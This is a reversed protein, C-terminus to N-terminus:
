KEWGLLYIITVSLIVALFFIILDILITACIKGLVSFNRMWKVKSRMGRYDCSFFTIAIVSLFLAIRCLNLARESTVQEVKLGLGLYAMSLYGCIAIVKHWWVGQRFGPFAYPDKMQKGGAPEGAGNRDTIYDMVERMSQFRDDPDIATCKDVMNSLVSSSVGASELMERVTAGLGYVDTREDSEAFGFQEPAAYGATGMILTDRSKEGSVHRAINFDTLIVTGDGLILINDPKVDRHIIPPERRHLRDLIGALRYAISKIRLEDLGNIELFRQLTIGRVYEEVVILHEVGDFDARYIELIEPTGEIHDTKLTRYIQEDFVDQCRVVCVGGEIRNAALWVTKGARIDALYEYTNATYADAQWLRPLLEIKVNKNDM